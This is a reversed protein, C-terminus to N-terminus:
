GLKAQSLAGKCGPWLDDEGVEEGTEKTEGALAGGKKQGERLNSTTGIVPRNQGPNISASLIVKKREGQLARGWRYERLYHSRVAQRDAAFLGRKGKEKKKGTKKKEERSKPSAQGKRV